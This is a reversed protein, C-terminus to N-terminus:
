MILASRITREIPVASCLTLDIRRLCLRSLREQPSILLFWKWILTMYFFIGTTYWVGAPSIASGTTVSGRATKYPYQISISCAGNAKGAFKYEATISYNKSACTSLTQSLIEGSNTNFPGPYLIANFAYRGGNNTSGPAAVNFTTAPSVAGVAWYPVHGEPDLGSEFGGNRIITSPCNNTNTTPASLAFPFTTLASLLLPFRM